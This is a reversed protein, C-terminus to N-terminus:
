LAWAVYIIHKLKYQLIFIYLRYKNEVQSLYNHCYRNHLKWPHSVFNSLNQSFILQLWVQLFPTTALQWFTGFNLKWLWNDIDVIM